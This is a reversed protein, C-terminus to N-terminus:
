HSGDSGDSEAPSPPSEDSSHARVFISANVVDRDRLALVMRTGIWTLMVIVAVMVWFGWERQQGPLWTNAGYFGVILTPILFVAALVEIRRARSEIRDRHTGPSFTYTKNITGSGIPENFVGNYFYSDNPNKPWQCTSGVPRRV